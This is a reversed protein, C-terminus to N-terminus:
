TQSGRSQPVCLPKDSWWHGLIKKTVSMLYSEQLIRAASYMQRVAHLVSTLFAEPPKNQSAKREGMGKCVAYAKLGLELTVLGTLLVGGGGEEGFM